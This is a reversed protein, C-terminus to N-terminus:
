PKRGVGAYFWRSGETDAEEPDEAGWVGVFTVEPPADPYPPVVALGRFFRAVEHKTRNVPPTPTRRYIEMVAQKLQDSMQHDVSSHSLALYSGSPVADLYRKVLGYPDDEDHVFHLVAVMLMGVPASFDILRRTEPHALIGDPRRLDGEIMATRDGAGGAAAVLERGRAVVIPDNDVYLVRGDSVVEAVVDHTNRRTPLGAGIDIFQRIGWSEAMRRVVRQLFGRNAWASDVIPPIQQMVQEAAARDAATNATGGLYFDYMGGATPRPLPASESM